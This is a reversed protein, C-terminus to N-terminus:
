TFYKSAPLEEPPADHNTANTKTPFRDPQNRQNRHEHLPPSFVLWCSRKALVTIFFLGAAGRSACRSSFCAPLEEPPADHNTANTKTPSRDPQNRQNRHEHLPPSFVLWCSRKALVTIFFL